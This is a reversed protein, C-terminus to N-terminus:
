KQHEEHKEGGRGARPQPQPQPQGQPQGMSPARAFDQPHGGGGNPPGSREIRPERNGRPTGANVANPGQPSGSREIRAERNGRPPGADFANPGQPPGSREIRAERNGRPPGANVANQGQPGSREIRAENNGGGGGRGAVANQERFAGPRSTATVGPVGRNLSAFQARDTSAAREHRVQAQTWAQHRDHAALREQATPRAAIGSTGGNFSVRSVNSHAVVTQNYTNHIYRTNVNNCATNYSFVGNRWYGGDYGLGFYGFGYNIGGYFGVRPGWYGPYWIYAGDWGWYGPTWLAGVYPALVWTGPVWFYGEPSYAWYGPTWIYGPA